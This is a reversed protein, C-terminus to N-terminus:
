LDVLITHGLLMNYETCITAAMGMHQYAQDPHYPVARAVMLSVTIVSKMHMTGCCPFWHGQLWITSQMYQAM